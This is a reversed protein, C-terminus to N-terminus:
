IRKMYTPKPTQESRIGGDRSPVAKWGLAAPLEKREVPAATWVRQSENCEHVRIPQSKGSRPCVPRLPTPRECAPILRETWVADWRICVWLTTTFTLVPQFLYSTLASILPFSAGMQQRRSFVNVCKLWIPILRSLGTWLGTEWGDWPCVWTELGGMGRYIVSDCTVARSRVLAHLERGASVRGQKDRVSLDPHSSTWSAGGLCCFDYKTEETPVNLGQLASESGHVASRYLPLSTAVLLPPHFKLVVERPCCLCLECHWLLPTVSSTAKSTFIIWIIQYYVTQFSLNLMKTASCSLLLCLLTRNNVLKLRNTNLFWCQSDSDVPWQASYKVLYGLYIFLGYSFICLKFCPIHKKAVSCASWRLM